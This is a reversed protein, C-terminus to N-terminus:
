RGRSPSKLLLPRRGPLQIARVGPGPEPLFIAGGEGHGYRVFSATESGVQQGLEDLLRATLQEGEPTFAMTQVPGLNQRGDPDIRLSLWREDARADHNGQLGQVAAIREHVGAYTYDSIWYPRCYSMVDSYEDPDLLEDTEQDWGVVGIGGDDYPFDPDNSSTNGCPAHSRNQAHGLEHVMVQATGEGEFGLGVSVKLEANNPNGVLYSLGATCGWSCFDDYTDRPAVLAFFYTDWPLEREQRITRMTELVEGFGSGDSEFGIDTEWVEGVSLEVDRVPYMRRLWSEILELQAASTDPLRGSGDALYGVPLIEVRLAGGWDSVGLPARGLAPWVAPSGDDSSDHREVEWLQVSIRVDSVLLDGPVPIEFASDRDIEDSDDEVHLTTQLVVAEGGPAELTLEARVDQDVWFPEAEFTIRVLADRGAVIPARRAVEEGDQVLPVRVAQNISVGTISLGTVLGPPPELSTTLPEPAPEPCGAVLLGLFLLPPLCRRM